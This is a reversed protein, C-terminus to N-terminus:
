KLLHVFCSVLYQWIDHAQQSNLGLQGFLGIMTGVLLNKWDIKRFKKACDVLYDIKQNVITIQDETLEHKELLFDKFRGLSTEILHVEPSSFEQYVDNVNLSIEKDPLYDSIHEWPNKVNIERQLSMLWKAFNVKQSFWSHQEETEILNTAGPSFMNQDSGGRNRSDKKLNFAFYYKSNKYSLVPIGTMFEPNETTLEFRNPDLGNEFLLDFIEKKQSPLLDM